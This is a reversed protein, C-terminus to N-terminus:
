LGQRPIVATDTLDRLGATLAHLARSVEASLPKTAAKAAAEFEGVKALADKRSLRGFDPARLGLSEYAAKVEAGHDKQFNVKAKGYKMLRFTTEIQGELKTRDAGSTTPRDKLNQLDDYYSRLEAESTAVKEGSFHKQYTPQFADVRAQVVEPKELAGPTLYGNKVSWTAVNVDKELGKFVEPKLSDANGRTFKEWRALHAQSGFESAGGPSKEAYALVTKANPFGEKWKNLSNEGGCYCASIALDEVQAAATPMAKALATLDERSLAGNKFKYAPEDGYIASGGSHGSLVLRGPIQKGKEGPAWALALQALEDRTDAGANKLTTEIKASQDAPLGLTKVFDARGKDTTLDFTVATKGTGITITDDKKADQILDVSAGSKRLAAAENSAFKNMGVMLVDNRRVTM